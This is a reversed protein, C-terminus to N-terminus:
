QAHTHTPKAAYDGTNDTWTITPPNATGVYSTGYIYSFQEKFWERGCKSCYVNGCDACVRLDHKCTGDNHIHM